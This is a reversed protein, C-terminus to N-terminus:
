NKRIYTRYVITGDILLGCIGIIFLFILAWEPLREGTKLAWASLATLFAFTGIGLIDFSEPRLNMPAKITDYVM